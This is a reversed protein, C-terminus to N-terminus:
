SFYQVELGISRIPHQRGTLDALVGASVLCNRIRAEYLLAFQWNGSLRAKLVGDREDDLDQQPQLRPSIQQALEGANVDTMVPIPSYLEKEAHVDEGIEDRLTVQRLSARQAMKETLERNEEIGTVVPDRSEADLQPEADTTLGRKGRRRGIWWEGGVSLDSEYSYVNVGFRTALAVTPSVQASYASSLFGILPNYLLTLTTPPSPVPANLPLPLTPPVTTFRLGTSIGFSRQKASFYVEGGASFRGKLGGEMMEEEDIRKGERERREKKDVESEEDGHWGFNYLTRLGVMGDQVSYTYEGCYRGTDHQLSIFVNGPTPSPAPTSPESPQRTHSPPTQPPTPRTSTPHAPQSLFALHAQLTPTLRTTALGSLHLSPLHLRSYLLYDRGEIRKGGLWVEDKPQPRKPPPFVRFREIVNKFATARGSGIEDLPMSTTIYSISGNLQPLADLAYSTFFIPTPSNALQLILSQPLQFDLLASSTRTLSSYLNDENWGIAAYYNRLIFASFGIM